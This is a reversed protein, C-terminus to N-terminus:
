ESPPPRIGLSLLIQMRQGADPVIEELLEPWTMRARRVAEQLTYSLPSLPETRRFFEAIAALSRLADERSTLTATVEVGGVAAPAAPASAGDPSPAVAGITAAEGGGPAFRDVADAIMQLLDRVRTTPPAEDGARADLTESLGRWADVAAKAETRLAVFHAAGAAHAENEVTEFPLVGAEIRKQRVETDGSKALNESQEYQWFPMPSGDPRLFLSVRRLAPGLLGEGSQGNLGAVPRVRTAMGDEDPLPYLDDWFGEVLGTMLRVGSTFGVLGDSRLLAETLWAAIELDKSHGAIAEIGLDRITRWEPPPASLPDETELAREAARAEARADRLRYYLSQPSADGRLDVGAPADGPIPALLVALDFGEPFREM